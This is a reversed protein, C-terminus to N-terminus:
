VTCSGGCRKYVTVLGDPLLTGGFTSCGQRGPSSDVLPQCDQRCWRQLDRAGACTTCSLVQSSKSIFYHQWEFSGRCCAQGSWILYGGLQVAFCLLWQLQHMASYRSFAELTLAFVQPAANLVGCSMGVDLRWLRGDCQVNAGCTQMMCHTLVRCGYVHRDIKDRLAASSPGHLAAPSHHHSTGGDHLSQHQLSAPQHSAELRVRTDAHCCVALGVWVHMGSTLPSSAGQRCGQRVTSRVLLACEPHWTGPHVGMGQMM